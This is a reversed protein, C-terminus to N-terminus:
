GEAQAILTGMPIKWSFTAELTKVLTEWTDPFQSFLRGNVRAVFQDGVKSVELKEVRTDFCNTATWVERGSETVKHDFEIITFM